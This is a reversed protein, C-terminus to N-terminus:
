ADFKEETLHTGNDPAKNTIAVLVAKGISLSPIHLKHIKILYIMNRSFIDCIFIARKERGCPNEHQFDTYLEVYLLKDDMYCAAHLSCIFLM